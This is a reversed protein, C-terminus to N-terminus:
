ETVKQKRTKSPTEQLYGEKVLFAVRKSDSSEYTNGESYGKLTEKDIFPKLVLNSM